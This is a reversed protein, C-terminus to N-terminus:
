VYEYEMILKGNKELGLNVKWAISCISMSYVTHGTAHVHAKYM